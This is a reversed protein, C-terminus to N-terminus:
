KLISIGQPEGIVKGREMVINGRIITYVPMGKVKFGEFPTIRKKSHLNEKSIFGEQNMDVITLDADAGITISGKKPYINMLKAQNVSSVAVYQELTMLGKNVQTLMIPVNTEVGVFGPITDWISERFKEEESHPSHDTSIVDITGDLLGEWLANLDEKKRIPPNILMAAGIKEYDQDCLVLNHPATEASVKLGKQKAQRVLDVGEKSSIHAIHLKGNVEEALTIARQIAEKEAINPRSELYAHFDKKGEKILRNTEHNVISTNEAHVIIPCGTDRLIWLAKLLIADEVTPSKMSSLVMMAKFGLVGASVQELLHDLNDNMISGLLSYDVFSRGEIMMKKKQYSNMDAVRPNTNPMDFVTTVGGVAAATSGTFFDEKYTFGPDRFHVHLDIVGPLVHLGEARIEKKVNNEQLSYPKGISIIKGKEIGIDVNYSGEVSVMCANRILLDM